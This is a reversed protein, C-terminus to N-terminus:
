KRKRTSYTINVQKNTKAITERELSHSGILTKRPTILSRPFRDLKAISLRSYRPSYSAMHLVGKARSDSGLSSKKIFFFVSLLFDRSVTGKFANVRDFITGLSVGNEIFLERQNILTVYVTCDPYWVPVPVQRTIKLGDVMKVDSLFNM